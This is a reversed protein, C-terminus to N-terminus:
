AVPRALAAEIAKITEPGIGPVDDLKGKAIVKRLRDYTNIGANSLAARGPFDASLTGEPQAPPAHPDTLDTGGGQNGVVNGAEDVEQTIPITPPKSRITEYALFIEHPERDGCEDEYLFLIGRAGMWEGNPGWLADDAVTSDLHSVEVKKHVVGEGSVDTTEDGLIEVVAIANRVEGTKKGAADFTEIVPNFRHIRGPCTRRNIFVWILSRFPGFSAARAARAEKAEKAERAEREKAERAEKDKETESM